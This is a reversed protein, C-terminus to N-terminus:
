QAGDHRETHHDQYKDREHDVSDVDESPRLVAM